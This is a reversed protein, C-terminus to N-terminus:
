EQRFFTSILKSMLGGLATEISSMVTTMTAFTWERSIIGKQLIYWMLYAYVPLMFYALLVLPGSVVRTSTFGQKKYHQLYHEVIVYVSALFTPALVGFLTMARETNLAGTQTWRYWVWGLVFGKCIILLLFLHRQLTSESLLKKKGAGKKIENPLRETWELVERTVQAQARSFEDFSIQGSGLYIIQQELQAGAVQLADLPEKSECYTAYRIAADLATRLEGNAISARIATKSPIDTPMM